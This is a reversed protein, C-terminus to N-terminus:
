GYVCAIGGFGVGLLDEIRHVFGEVAIFILVLALVRVLDGSSQLGGDVVRLDGLVPFLSRLLLQVIHLTTAECSLSDTADSANTM